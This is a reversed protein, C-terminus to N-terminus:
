GIVPLETTPPQFTNRRVLDKVLQFAVREFYPALQPEDFLQRMQGEDGRERIPISLPVEGLFPVEQREAERRAGGSGFIEYRKQCGPCLFGSMNEVMGLIPIRVQRFMAIAKVADLLAVEQPTCVVVAGTPGLVQSLSLAVDGTGPPMDVILYDLEGWRTGGLLQTLSGHLMPGRWVVAQEKPVLFGMSHVPMGDCDIPIMRKEEDVAIQGELGLLHPVSPGYVDADLLGVHCGMRKLALALCVAVTSKGVGGKGSGVAIVSKATLGVQGKPIPPRRCGVLEIEISEAGPFRSALREHLAARTEEWVPAAYSTLGLKLSITTPAVQLDEIQGTEMVSRGTEPDQFERLVHEVSEQTITSM